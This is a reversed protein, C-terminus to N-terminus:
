KMILLYHLISCSKIPAELSELYLIM